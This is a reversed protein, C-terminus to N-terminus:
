IMFGFDNKTICDGCLYVGEGIMGVHSLDEVPKLVGCFDCTDLHDFSGRDRSFDYVDIEAADDSAHEFPSYEGRSVPSYPFYLGDSSRYFSVFKKVQRKTVRLLASAFKGAGVVGNGFNFGATGMFWLDELDSPEVADRVYLGHDQLMREYVENYYKYMAIGTRGLSFSFIWNYDEAGFYDLASSSGDPGISTLLVDIEVGFLPLENLLIHTGMRNLIDTAWVQRTASSYFFFRETEPDAGINAVGLVKAGTTMHVLIEEQSLSTGLPLFDAVSKKCVEELKKIDM